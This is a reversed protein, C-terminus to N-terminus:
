EEVYAYVPIKIEPQDPDKTHVSVEGKINGAPADEDLKLTGTLVYAKGEVKPTVDVSMFNVPCDVREVKLSDKGVTSITVKSVSQEGKRVIGLFFMDRDLDINGKITATVPLEAKPQRPHDSLITIKAAFEGIPAGPRLTATIIYGPLDKIKSPALTADVFPSDSSVSFVTFGDEEFVPLLVERSVSETRRPTGLSVTRPAFLLRDPRVYGTVKLLVVPTVADDSIVYLTKMVGRRQNATLVLARVEGEGGPPITQRASLAAVCASCSSDVRSITLEARGMNHCKFSHMPLDGLNVSGFDWTYDDFRLDPGENKSTPFVSADKAVLLAFGSYSEKLDDKRVARPGQPPDTVKIVGPTDGPQILVFHDGWLHAIALCRLTTIEDIAIKLGMTKLGKSKAAASLGALSTGLRKDCGSAATLEELTASVGATQCAALLCRPGCLVDEAPRGSSQAVAQMHSSIVGAALFVAARLALSTHTM